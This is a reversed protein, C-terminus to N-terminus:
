RPDVLCQGGPNSTPHSGKPCCWLKGDAQQPIEEGTYPMGIITPCNAENCKLAPNPNTIECADFKEGPLPVVHRWSSPLYLYAVGVILIVSVSVVAVVRSRSFPTWPM